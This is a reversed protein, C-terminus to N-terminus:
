VCCSIMLLLLSCTILSCFSMSGRIPPYRDLQLNLTSFASRVSFGCFFCTSTILKSGISCCFNWCVSRMKLSYLSTLTCSSPRPTLYKELGPGLHVDLGVVANQVHAANEDLLLRLLGEGDLVNGVEGDLVLELALLLAHLVDVAAPNTKYNM